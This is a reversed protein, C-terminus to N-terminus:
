KLTFLFSGDDVDCGGAGLHGRNDDGGGVLLVVVVDDICRDGNVNM